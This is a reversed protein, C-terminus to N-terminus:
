TDKLALSAEIRSPSLPGTVLHHYLSGALRIVGFVAFSSWVGVLTSGWLKLCTLLGISALVMLLALRGFDEHGQMIGEGVFVVGNLVQTGAAILSPVKAAEQVAEVPSFVRLLPLAGVQLIGLVVGMLLGWVLIRDAASKAAILGGGESAKKNVTQTIIISAISGLSLLVIGGLQWLNITLTHAAAHIGNTDMQLTSRMACILAVNLSVARLQVALGGVLLPRLSLWSPPQWMYRWRVMRRKLLLWMYVGFTVLEAGATAMAAGAAGLAAWPGLGFILVPDLLVNLVQCCLTVKLPTM